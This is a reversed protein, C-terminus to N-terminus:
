PCFKNIFKVVELVIQNHDPSELIPHANNELWVKKKNNSKINNFIYDMSNMKIESDLRGQFLLAPCQINILSKKMEKMDCMVSIQNM